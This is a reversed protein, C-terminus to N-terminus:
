TARTFDNEYHKHENEDLRSISKKWLVDVIKIFFFVDIEPTGECSENLAQNGLKTLSFFIWSKNSGINEIQHSM